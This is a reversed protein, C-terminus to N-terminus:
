SRISPPQAPRKRQDIKKGLGVQAVLFGWYRAPQHIEGVPQSEGAIRMIGCMIMNTSEPLNEVCSSRHCGVSDTFGAAIWIRTGAPLGIM